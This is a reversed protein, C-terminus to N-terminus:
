SVRRGAVYAYAHVGARVSGKAHSTSLVPRSERRSELWDNVTRLFIRGQTQTFKRFASVHRSPLDPIEAKREILPAFARRSSVNQGVTQLLSALARTTHQLVVPNHNSIVAVDSTPKYRGRGSRVVLRLSKLTRALVEADGGVRQARILAQVSPAPGLLPVARPTAYASLYRRDRHWADLVLAAIVLEGTREGTSRRVKVEAKNLATSCLHQLQQRKMGGSLMLEFLAVLVSSSDLEFQRSTKIDV